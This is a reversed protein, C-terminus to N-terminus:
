CVVSPVMIDSYAYNEDNNKNAIDRRYGSISLTYKITNIYQKRIKRKQKNISSTRVQRVLWGASKKTTVKYSMIRKMDKGFGFINTM